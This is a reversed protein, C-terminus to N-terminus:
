PLPGARLFYGTEDYVVEISQAQILGRPTIMTFTGQVQVQWLVQQPDCVNYTDIGTVVLGARLFADAPTCNPRGLLQGLTTRQTTVQAITGPWTSQVYQTARQEIQAQTLRAAAQQQRRATAYWGLGMILALCLALSAATLLWVARRTM